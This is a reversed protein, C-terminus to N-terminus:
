PEITVKIAEGRSVTDLAAAVEGLPLTHTILDCVPIQGSAILELAAANQAPSAGSAGVITLERYHIANSDFAMLPSGQPLGSFLSIRGRPAAMAIAQEQAAAAASALIVADAGRGDTLDRVADAADAGDGCIAADPKVLGAARRLRAASLSVMLVRAAGRARALRVHLCGIPGAGVVVVDDGEGVRALEQGNLVCALPEALSAEAFSLRDPIRNVGGVALASDPVIMYRSFGGDHDYSITTKGPCLNMGGGRCDQCTGCPVIPAVQVRDGAKWERVGAGTEAVEGAVEHGMVRPPVIRHHGFRSIRVDTGCVSCNRVRIKLEGPGAIPEPSDELRIDGPAYYRAVKVSRTGM